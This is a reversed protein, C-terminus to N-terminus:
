INLDSHKGEQSIFSTREITCCFSQDNKMFLNGILLEITEM